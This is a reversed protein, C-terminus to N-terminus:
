GEYEVVWKSIKKGDVVTSERGVIKYNGGRNLLIEKEKKYESVPSINVAKSGKPVRVELLSYAEVNHYDLTNIVARLNESATTSTYGYDRFSSGIQFQDAFDSTVFRNTIINEETISNDFLKDLNKVAQREKADEPWQGPLRGQNNRLETNITAYGDNSSYFKIAKEIEPQNVDSSSTVELAKDGQAANKWEQISQTQEAAANTKQANEKASSTKKPTTGSPNTKLAPTIAEKKKQAMPSATSKSSSNKFATKLSKGNFKGGLGGQIKGGPGILVPKGTNQPGNPKVTIWKEKAM